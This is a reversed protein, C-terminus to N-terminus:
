AALRPLVVRVWQIFDLMSMASIGFRRFRRSSRPNQWL